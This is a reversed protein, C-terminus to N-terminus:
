KDKPLTIIFETFEGMQSNIALKGNHDKIIDNCLPLGLGTGKGVPKTTFFPEFIKVRLDEPIGNGNDKIKIIINKEDEQTSISITPMFDKHATAVKENAAYLGNNIINLFVRGIGQSSATIKPLNPALNIEIKANLTNNQARMGHYALNLYEELLANIDILTKEVGSIRAQILMNKIISEARKGHQSIKKNNNSVDEIIDQISQTVDASVDTVKALEKKLDELLEVTLDSFNNIFNLPNKIEHAIGASLMGISAMKEQSILQQQADQLSKKLQKIQQDKDELLSSSVLGTGRSPAGKRMIIMIFILLCLIIILASIGLLFILSTGKQSLASPAAGYANPAITMGGIVYAILLERLKNLLDIRKM